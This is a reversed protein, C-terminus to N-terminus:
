AEEDSTNIITRVEVKRAFRHDFAPLSFTGHGHLRLWKVAESLTALLRETAENGFARQYLDLQELFNSRSSM